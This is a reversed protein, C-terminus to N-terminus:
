TESFCLPRQLGLGFFVSFSKQVDTNLIPINYKQLINVILNCLLICHIQHSGCCFRQSKCQIRKQNIEHKELILHAPNVCLRKNCLHSVELDLRRHGPWACEHWLLLRTFINTGEGTMEGENGWVWQYHHRRQVKCVKRLSENRVFIKTLWKDYVSGM